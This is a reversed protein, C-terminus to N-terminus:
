ANTEEEGLNYRDKLYEMIYDSFAKVSFKADNITYNTISHRVCYDNYLSGILEDESILVLVNNGNNM